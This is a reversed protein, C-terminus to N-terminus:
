SVHEDKHKRIDYRLVYWAALQDAAGLMSYPYQTHPLSYLPSRLGLRCFTAAISFWLLQRKQWLKWIVWTLQHRVAWLIMPDAELQQAPPPQHIHRLPAWPAPQAQHQLLDTYISHCHLDLRLDQRFFLLFFWTTLTFRAHAKDSKKETWKYLHFRNSNVCNM